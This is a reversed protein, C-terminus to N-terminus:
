MRRRQPEQRPRRPRETPGQRLNRINRVFALLLDKASLATPSCQGILNTLAESARGPWCPTAFPSSDYEDLKMDEVSRGLGACRAAAADDDDAAAALPLLAPTDNLGSELADLNGIILRTTTTAHLVILLDKSLALPQRPALRLRCLLRLGLSPAHPLRRRREKLRTLLRVRASRLTGDVAADERRM